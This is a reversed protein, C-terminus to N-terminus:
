WLYSVCRLNSQFHLYLFVLFDLLEYLLISHPIRFELIFCWGVYYDWFFFFISVLTLLLYSVTWYVPLLMLLSSLFLFLIFVFRYSMVIFLLSLSYFCGRSERGVSVCPGMTRLFYWQVSWIIGYTSVNKRYFSFFPSHDKTTSM